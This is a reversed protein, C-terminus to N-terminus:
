DHQFESHNKLTDVVFKKFNQRFNEPSFKLANERCNKPDIKPSLSEFELVAAMLSDVDQSNFFLGTRQTTEDGGLITETAGGKKFAIVPTGCAQAELPTIGFDEEAAFVFARARQMYHKLVDFSQWGMLLVNETAIAECKLFDPGSGIVVLKKEPMRSFAEVILPIRKYPVMRSATLYFNEKKEHFDFNLVDVPPYIVNSKRRYVKNIRRSIYQSNAIYSDVGNSSRLDWLRMYHLIVRALWGVIGSDLKSERLYQHQFDWAYRMPTHCMCIHIQDPGTIVGKAVSHSSSIVLDYKSLDFQEIALPFLPFYSRFKRKAFPLKQIFSTKVSREKIFKRGDAPLFDVLSFLDAEPFCNLMQEVVRESGSYDVFWEHIIAIKM